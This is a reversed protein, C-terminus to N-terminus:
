DTQEFRKRWEPELKDLIAEADDPYVAGFVYYQDQEDANFSDWLSERIAQFGHFSGEEFRDWHQSVLYATRDALSLFAAQHINNEKGFPTGGHLTVNWKPFIRDIDPKQVDNATIRPFENAKM